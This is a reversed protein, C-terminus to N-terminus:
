RVEEFYKIFENISFMQKYGDEAIIYVCTTTGMDVVKYTKGEEFLVVLKKLKFTTYTVSKICRVKM